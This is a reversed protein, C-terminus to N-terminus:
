IFAQIVATATITPTTIDVTIGEMTPLTIGEMTPLTIVTAVMDTATQPEPLRHFRFLQM